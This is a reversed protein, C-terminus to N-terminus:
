LLLWDNLLLYKGLLVLPVLFELLELFDLFDVPSKWFKEMNNSVEEPLIKHFQTFDASFNAVKWPLIYKRDMWYM